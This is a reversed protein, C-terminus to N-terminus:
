KQQVEEEDSDELVQGPSPSELASIPTSSEVKNEETEIIPQTTTPISGDKQSSEM